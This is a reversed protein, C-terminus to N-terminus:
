IYIKKKFFLRNIIYLSMFINKNFSRKILIIIRWIYIINLSYKVLLKSKNLLYEFIRYNLIKYSNKLM